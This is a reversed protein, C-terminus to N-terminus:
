PRLRPNRPVCVQDTSACLGLTLPLVLRMRESLMMQHFEPASTLSVRMESGCGSLFRSGYYWWGRICCPFLVRSIGYLDLRGGGVVKGVVSVSQQELYTARMEVTTFFDV